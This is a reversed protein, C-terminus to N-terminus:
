MRPHLLPPRETRWCSSCVAGDAPVARVAGAGRALVVGVPRYSSLLPVHKDLLKPVDLAQSDVVTLRDDAATKINNLAVQKMIDNAQLRNEFHVLLRHSREEPPLEQALEEFRRALRCGEDNLDKWSLGFNKTLETMDASVPCRDSSDKTKQRADHDLFYRM